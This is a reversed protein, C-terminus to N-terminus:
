ESSNDDEDFTCRLQEIANHGREICREEVEDRDGPSLGELEDPTWIIVAFGRERLDRLMQMETTSLEKSM